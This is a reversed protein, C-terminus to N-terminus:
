HEHAVAAAIKEAVQEAHHAHEGGPLIGGGHGKEHGHQGHGQRHDVHAHGDQPPEHAALGDEPRVLAVEVVHQQALSQAVAVRHEQAVAHGQEDAGCGQGKQLDAVLAGKEDQQEHTRGDKVRQRPHAIEVAVVGPRQQGPQPVHAVLDAQAPRPAAKEVQLELEIRGAGQVVQLAVQLRGHGVQVDRHGREVQRRVAFQRGLPPGARRRARVLPPLLCRQVGGHHQPRVRRVPQPLVRVVGHGLQVAAQEPHLHVQAIVVAAGEAGQHQELVLRDRRHAVVGEVADFM